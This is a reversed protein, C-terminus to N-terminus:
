ASLVVRAALLWWVVLAAVSLAPAVQDWWGCVESFGVQGLYQVNVSTNFPCSGTGIMSGWGTALQGIPSSTIGSQLRQIEGSMTIGDPNHGERESSGPADFPEDEEGDGDGDGGADGGGDGEGGGTGAGDGSAGDAGDSAGEAGDAANSAGTAAAQAAGASAAGAAAASAANAAAAAAAAAADGASAAAAAAAAAQQAAQALTAAGAAAAAAADADGSESEAMDAAADANGFEAAADTAADQAPPVAAAAEDALQAAQDAFMQASEAHPGPFQAAYDAAAQANAASAAAAGAAASATNVSGAASASSQMAEDRSESAELFFVRGQEAEAEAGAATDDIVEQPNSEPTPDNPVDCELGTYEFVSWFPEQATSGMKYMAQCDDICANDFSTWVGPQETYEGALTSCDPADSCNCGDFAQGGKACLAETSCGSLSFYYYWSPSNTNQTHFYTKGNASCISSVYVGSPFTTWQEVTAPDGTAGGHSYGAEPCALSEASFGVFLLLFLPSLARRM